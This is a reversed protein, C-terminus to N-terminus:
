CASMTRRYPSRLTKLGGGLEEYTGPKFCYITDPTQTAMFTYKTADVKLVEAACATDTDARTVPM